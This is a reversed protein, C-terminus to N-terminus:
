VNNEYVFFLCIKILLSFFFDILILDDLFILIFLYELWLFWFIM